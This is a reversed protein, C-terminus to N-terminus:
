KKLSECGKFAGSGISIIGSCLKIKRIENREYENNLVGTQYPSFVDPGVATITKGLDYKSLDINEEGGRYGTILLSGDAKKEYFYNREFKKESETKEKKSDKKWKTIFYEAIKGDFEWESYDNEWDDASYDQFGFSWKHDMFSYLVKTEIEYVDDQYPGVESFRYIDSISKEGFDKYFVYSGYVDNSAGLGIFKVGTISGFPITDTTYSGCDYWDRFVIGAVYLKSDNPNINDPNYTGEKLEYTDKKLKGLAKKINVSTGKILVNMIEFQVKEM